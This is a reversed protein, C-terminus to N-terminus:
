LFILYVDLNIVSEELIGHPFVVICNGKDEICVCLYKYTRDMERKTVNRRQKSSDLMITALFIAASRRKDM